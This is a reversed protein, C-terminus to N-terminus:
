LIELYLFILYNLKFKFVQKLFKIVQQWTQMNTPDFHDLNQQFWMDEPLEYEKSLIPAGINGNKSRGRLFTRWGFIGDFNCIIILCFIILTKM